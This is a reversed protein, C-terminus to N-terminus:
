QSLNMCCKKYKKGSGCPCKDNRGINPKEIHQKENILQTCRYDYSIVTDDSNKEKSGVSVRWDLVDDKIVEITERFPFFAQKWHTEPKDPSTTIEIGDCLKTCFWGAVGHITGAKEMQMYIRTEFIEKINRTLDIVGISAPTSLLGNKNISEVMIKKSFLDFAPTFDIGPIHRWFDIKNYAHVDSVPAIFLEISQPILTGGEILFRNRADNTFQITNEDIGFSGLTESILVNAREPLEVNMSNENIFEIKDLCNNAKAIEIALHIASTKEIAYVKKAGAQLAWISLLGTGAGMDVVIDGPKVTKFIAQRFADLRVKDSLMQYYNEYGIQALNSNTM